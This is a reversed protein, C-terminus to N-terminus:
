NFIGETVSTEEFLLPFDVGGGVVVVAISVVLVSGIIWATRAKSFFCRFKPFRFTIKRNM